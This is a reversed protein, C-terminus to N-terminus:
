SCARLGALREFADPEREKEVPLYRQVRPPLSDRVMSACSRADVALVTWSGQVSNLFSEAARIIGADDASYALRGLLDPARLIERAKAISEPDRKLRHAM